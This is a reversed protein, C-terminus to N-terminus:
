DRHICTPTASSSHQTHGADVQPLVRASFQLERGVSAARVLRTFDSEVALWDPPSTTLAPRAGHRQRLPPLEPQCSLLRLLQQSAHLQIILIQSKRKLTLHSKRLPLSWRHVGQVQPDVLAGPPSGSTLAARFLLSRQARTEQPPPPTSAPRCLPLILPCPACAALTLHPSPRSLAHHNLLPLRACRASHSFGGREREDSVDSVCEEGDSSAQAPSTSRGNPSNFWGFWRAALRKVVTLDNM